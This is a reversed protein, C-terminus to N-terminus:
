RSPYLLFFTPPSPPVRREKTRLNIHATQGLDSIVDRMDRAQRPTGSLFTCIMAAPIATASLEEVRGVVRCEEGSASSGM